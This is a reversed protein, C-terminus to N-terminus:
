SRVVSYGMDKLSKELFCTPFSGRLQVGVAIDAKIGKSAGLDKYKSQDCETYYENEAGGNVMDKYWDKTSTTEQEGQLMAQFTQYVCQWRIQPYWYITYKYGGKKYVDKGAADKNGGGPIDITLSKKHYTFKYHKLFEEENKYCGTNGLMPIYFLSREEDNSSKHCKTIRDLLKRMNPDNADPIQYVIWKNLTPRAHYIHLYEGKFSDHIVGGPFARSTKTYQDLTLKKLYAIYKQLPVAVKKVIDMMNKFTMSPGPGWDIRYPYNYADSVETSKRWIVSELVKMNQTIKDTKMEPKIELKLYHYKHQSVSELPGIFVYEGSSFALDTAPYTNTDVYLYLGQQPQYPLAELALQNSELSGVPM